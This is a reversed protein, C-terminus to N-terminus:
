KDVTKNLYNLRSNCATCKLKRYPNSEMNKHKVKGIYHEQCGCKYVHYTKKSQKRYGKVHNIIENSVQQTAKADAYGFVRMFVKFNDRHSMCGQFVRGQLFHTYEHAITEKYDDFFKEILDPNLLITFKGNSDKCRGLVRTSKLEDLEYDFLDDKVIHGLKVSRFDQIANWFTESLEALYIALKMQAEKSLKM